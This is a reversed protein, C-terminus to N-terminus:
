SNGYVPIIGGSAVRNQPSALWTIVAAIDDPKVMRSEDVDPM